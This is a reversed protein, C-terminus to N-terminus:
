LSLLNVFYCSKESLIIVSLDSSEFAMHLLSACIYVVENLALM